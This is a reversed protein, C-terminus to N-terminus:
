WNNNEHQSIRERIIKKIEEGTVPPSFLYGQGEACRNEYLFDFQEKTEIGEAVVNLRLNHAIDIVTKVMANDESSKGIENTFSRDIKLTDIPFKKLLMLSSFGTGFDDISIHIGLEKLEKLIKLAFDHNIMISETIEIEIYNPDINYEQLIQKVSNALNVNEFLIPSFNIAVRLPYIGENRWKNIDECVMRIVIETIPGILRTKEAIPIFQVPSILGKKPHNWRILAEISTVNHNSLNIKPQYLMSFENKDIAKRLDLELYIQEKMKELLDLQFFEIRNGGLEKARYMSFDANKVLTDAETGHIPYVSIGVSLSFFFDEGEVTVPSHFLNLLGTAEKKIEQISPSEFIITFEDGGLRYLQSRKSLQETMKSVVTKLVFDGFTHGKTDNIYKFRDLDLFIVSLGSSKDLNKIKESLDLNFKRRNPLMTLEDYYALYAVQEEYLKRETIDTRIAIYQEPNGQQNLIPIVTSHVWYYSGDKAKNRIEGKWVQGSQITDWMQKFFFKSHYESNIIRHSKGILEERSYKSMKCFLNNVYTINGTLDTVAVISSQDLAFKLDALQKNIVSLEGSSDFLLHQLNDNMTHITEKM